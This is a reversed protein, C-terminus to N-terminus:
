SGGVNVGFGRHIAHLAAGVTGATQMKFPGLVKSKLVFAPLCAAPPVEAIMAIRASSDLSSLYRETHVSHLDEDSIASTPGIPRLHPFKTTLAAYVKGYKSSDFSHLKEVGFLTINYSPHYFLPM